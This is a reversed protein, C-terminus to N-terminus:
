IKQKPDDGVDGYYTFPGLSLRGDSLRVTGVGSLIGGSGRLEANNMLMILYTRPEEGGLMAQSLEAAQTANRLSTAWAGAENRLRELQDWVSPVLWGSLGEAVSRELNIFAQSQSALPGSLHAIADVDIVGSRILGEGFENEVAELTTVTSMLAPTLRDVTTRVANMNQAALPIFGLLRAPITRLTSKADRVKTVASKVADTTLQTPNPDSLLRRAERLDSAVTLAVYLAAAIGVLFAIAAVAAIKKRLAAM